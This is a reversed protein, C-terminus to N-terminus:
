GASSGADSLSACTVSPPPCRSMLVIWAHSACADSAFVFTYATTSRPCHILRLDQRCRYDRLSGSLARTAGRVVIGFLETTVRDESAHALAPETLNEQGMILHRPECPLHASM